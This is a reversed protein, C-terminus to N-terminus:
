HLSTGTYRANELLLALAESRDWTAALAAAPFPPSLFAFSLLPLSLLHLAFRWALWALVPWAIGHPPPCPSSGHSLCGLLARSTGALCEPRFPTQRPSVPSVPSVPFIPSIPPFSAEGCSLLSYGASRECAVGVAVPMAWPADGVGMRQPSPAEGWGPGAGGQDM